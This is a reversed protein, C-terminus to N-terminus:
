PGVLAGVLPALVGAVVPGGLVGALAAVAILRYAWTLRRQLDEIQALRARDAEDLEPM